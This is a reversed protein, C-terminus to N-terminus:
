LSKVATIFIIHMVITIIPIVIIIFVFLQVSSRAEQSPLLQM